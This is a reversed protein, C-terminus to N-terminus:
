RLGKTLAVIAGVIVITQFGIASLVWKLIEFKAEAIETRLENKAAGIEARLDSKTALTSLDTERADRLVGTVAEAQDETFGVAKLRRAIALTDLTGASM